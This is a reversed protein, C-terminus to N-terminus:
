KVTILYYGLDGVGYNRKTGEFKEFGYMRAAMKEREHYIGPVGLWYEESDIEKKGLILYKYNYYGHLLFQNNRLVHYEEQLRYIDEVAVRFYEDSTGFPKIRERAHELWEWLSVPMQEPKEEPAEPLKEVKNEMEVEDKAPAPDPAKNEKVFEVDPTKREKALMQKQVGEEVPFEAVLERDESLPIRIRSLEWEWNGEAESRKISLHAHGDRLFVEELEMDMRTFIKVKETTGAKCINLSIELTHIGNKLEWKCFGGNGKKEGNEKYDFYAIQRKYAM